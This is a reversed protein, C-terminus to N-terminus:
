RRASRSPMAAIGAAQGLLARALDIRARRQVAPRRQMGFERPRHAIGRRANVGVIRLADLARELHELSVPTGIERSAVCRAHRAGVVISQSRKASHAQPGRACQVRAAFRAELCARPLGAPRLHAAKCAALHDSASCGDIRATPYRCSQRASHRAPRRQFFRCRLRDGRRAVPWAAVSTAADRVRASTSSAVRRIPANSADHCGYIRPKRPM